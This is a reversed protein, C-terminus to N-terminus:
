DKLPQPLAEIMSEQGESVKFLARNLSDMEQFLANFRGSRVLKTLCLRLPLRATRLPQALLSLVQSTIMTTISPM